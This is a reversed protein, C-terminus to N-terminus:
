RPVLLVRLSTNDTCGSPSDAALARHVTDPWLLMLVTHNTLPPESPQARCNQTEATTFIFGGVQPAQVM